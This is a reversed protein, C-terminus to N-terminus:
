PTAINFSLNYSVETANSRRNEERKEGEQKKTRMFQSSDHKDRGEM